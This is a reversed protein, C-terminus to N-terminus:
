YVMLFRMVLLWFVNPVFALSGMTLTMGAAARIMMLKRGRRDALSGM